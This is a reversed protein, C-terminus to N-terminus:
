LIHLGWEEERYTTARQMPVPCRCLPAGSGRGDRPDYCGSKREALPPFVYAVQPIILNRNDCPVAGPIAGDPM